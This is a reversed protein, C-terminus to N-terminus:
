SAAVREFPQPGRPSLVCFENGEPDALVVWSVESEPAKSQGVDIRHAGLSILREVEAGQDDDAFPAVDLHVRNKVRHPHQSAVFALLPGRGHPGPLVYSGSPLIRASRGTAQSWFAALMGPNQAECAIAAVAGTEPADSWPGVECFENGDPDALVEWPDDDKQGVDTRVAGAALLRQVEANQHEFDDNRLDLHVRNKVTKVDDVPVFTLEIGAEGDPPAVDTEDPSEFSVEWRLARAWWRGLRPPEPTDVVVAVLRTPM